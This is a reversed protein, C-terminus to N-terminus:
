PPFFILPDFTTRRGAFGTLLERWIERTGKRKMARRGACRHHRGGAGRAAFDQSFAQRMGLSRPLTRRTRRACKRCYGVEGSGLRSGRLKETAAPLTQEVTRPIITAVCWVVHRVRRDERQRHARQAAPVHVRHEAVAFPLNMDDVRSPRDSHNM